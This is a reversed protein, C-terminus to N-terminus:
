LTGPLMAHHKLVAHVVEKLKGTEIHCLLTEEPLHEMSLARVDVIELREPIIIMVIQSEVEVLLMASVNIGSVTEARVTLDEINM